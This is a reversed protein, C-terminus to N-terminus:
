VIQEHNSDHSFRKKFEKIDMYTLKLVKNHINNPGFFFQNPQFNPDKAKVQYLTAKLANLFISRDVGFIYEEAMVRLVVKLKEFHTNYRQGTLYYYGHKRVNNM